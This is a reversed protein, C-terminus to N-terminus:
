SESLPEAISSILTFQRVLSFWFPFLSEQGLNSSGKESGELDLDVYDVGMLWLGVIVHVEYISDDLCVQPLVCWMPLFSQTRISAVMLSCLLAKGVLEQWKPFCHLHSIRGLEWGETGDGMDASFEPTKQVHEYNSDM